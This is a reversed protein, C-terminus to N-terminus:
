RPAITAFHPSAARRFDRIAGESIRRHTRDRQALDARQLAELNKMM